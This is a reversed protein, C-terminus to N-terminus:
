PLKWGEHIAAIGGSLNRYTAKAFGAREIMLKFDEQAPFKRISEILYQYSSKDGAILAGMNPIAYFSWLDYLKALLPLDIQSFELCLFHGGPKLVRYAEALAQDIHPVNRIGFSITYADFSNDEFPLKQADGEIFEIYESYGKAQARERGVELMSSNIDVLCIKIQENGRGAKLARFAIDATGGAVDLLRWPTHRAPNLRSILADKWLRHMGASMFDNMLDYKKAVSHFVQNVKQQKADPEVDSFGFSSEMGGDAGIRQKEEM